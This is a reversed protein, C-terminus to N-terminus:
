VSHNNLYVPIGKQKISKESAELIEVVDVGNKGDTLPKRKELISDIFEKVASSLAETQSVQPSYMDGTRYQVLADHISETSKFEIGSDYIKIKESYELDDFVLMKKKGAIMIRRIKVPSTWNVHFHAFCSSDKFHISMQAINELCNYSSVGSATVAIPVKDKLVYNMISLDHPALDWVVNVDHQFLGLNIRVSDFYIIDGLEGKDILEKIKRVAGTYLFTHDVFINLKKSAAIKILEEGQAKSSTFPKEVWIHKGAELAEKALQFHTNVSTAIAVADVDSQLLQKYDNIVEIGPFKSKIQTLRDEKLDCAIVKEVLKNGFFNRVLNPGWYGLGIVGIKM